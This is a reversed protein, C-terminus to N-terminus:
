DMTEIQRELSQIKIEAGPWEDYTKLKNLQDRLRKIKHPLKQFRDSSWKDLEKKCRSIIQPLSLLNDQKCWGREVTEVCDTEMM